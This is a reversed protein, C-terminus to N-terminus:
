SVTRWTRDNAYIPLDTKDTLGNTGKLGNAFPYGRNTEEDVCPCVVFKRKYSSCVKFPNLSDGPGGNGNETKLKKRLIGSTGLIKIGHRWPRTEIAMDGHGHRWPWTERGHRWTEM